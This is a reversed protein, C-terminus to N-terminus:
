ATSAIPCVFRREADVVVAHPLPSVRHSSRNPNMTHSLFPVSLIPRPVVASRVVCHGAVAHSLKHTTPPLARRTLLACGVPGCRQIQIGRLVMM